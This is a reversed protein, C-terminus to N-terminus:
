AQAARREGAITIARALQAAYESGFVKAAFRVAADAQARRYRREQPPASRLADILAPATREIYRQLEVHVERSIQNVALENAFSRSAVVFTLRAETDAVDVESPGAKSVAENGQPARLLRRVVAPMPQIERQLLEAVEGRIAHFERGWASDRSMDLETQMGRIGDRLQRLAQAADSIRNEKLKDRLDAVSLHLEGLILNVAPALPAQAVRVAADSAASMVALRILQTENQLRGKLLVLMFPLIEPNAHATTMLRVLIQEAQAGTLNAIREPLHRSFDTLRDRNRLIVLLERVDLLGRLTGVQAAARRRGKEDTDLRELLNSIAQAVYDQFNRALQAAHPLDPVLLATSVQERYIRAPEPVLDRGIWNWLPALSARAILGSPLAPANHSTLFPTLAEFFLRAPNATRPPKCAMTPIAPRLRELILNVAPIHEGRLLARELTAVLSVQTEPPLEGLYAHLREVPLAENAM